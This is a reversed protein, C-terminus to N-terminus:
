QWLSSYFRSRRMPLRAPLTWEPFRRLDSLGWRYLVWVLCLLPFDRQMFLAGRQETPVGHPTTILFIRKIGNDSRGLGYALGGALNDLAGHLLKRRVTDGALEEAQLLM